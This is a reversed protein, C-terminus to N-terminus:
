KLFHISKIIAELEFVFDRKASSPNYVFGDAILYCQNTPDEIVYNLFPGNMFGNELEWTGRTEYTTKHDLRIKQFYPAYSEETIMGANNYLGKVYKRGVSDRIDIIKQALNDNESFSSFPIKYLLLNLNGSPVDKKLWCFDKNRIAYQFTNPLQLTIGFAEKISKDNFPTIANLRQNEIIEYYKLSSVLTNAHLEITRIIESSTYGSIYFVNQPFAYQNEVHKFQPIDSKSVVILTRSNKVSADFIKPSYQNITFLPEEDQLGDVPAALKKRLTDGIEGNWLVDDMIVSITNIKGHAEPLRLDSQKENSTCSLCFLLLLLGFFFNAKRM